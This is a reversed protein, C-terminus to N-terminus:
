EPLVPDLTFPQAASARGQDRAAETIYLFRRHPIYVFWYLMRDNSPADETTSFIIGMVLGGHPAFLRM